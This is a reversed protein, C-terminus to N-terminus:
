KAATFQMAKVLNEWSGTWEGFEPNKQVDALYSVTPALPAGKLAARWSKMLYRGIQLLLVTNEGEYTCAATLNVYLNGLNTSNLYGHGGCALRVREIGANGDISSLVKLACSLAHLEPLHEYKGQDIGSSTVNFLNWLYDYALRYAV